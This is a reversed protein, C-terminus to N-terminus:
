HCSGIHADKNPQPLAALMEERTAGAQASDLQNLNWFTVPERGIDCNLLYFEYLQSILGRVEHILREISTIPLSTRKAFHYRYLKGDIVTDRFLNVTLTREHIDFKSCIGVFDDDGKLTHTKTKMIFTSCLSSMLLLVYDVETQLTLPNTSDQKMINTFVDVSVLIPVGIPYFSVFSVM